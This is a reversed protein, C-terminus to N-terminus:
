DLEGHNLVDYCPVSFQKELLTGAMCDLFARAGSKACLNGVNMETLRMLGPTKHIHSLNSPRHLRAVVDRDSYCLVSNRVSHMFLVLVTNSLLSVAKYCWWWPRWWSVGHGPQPSLM